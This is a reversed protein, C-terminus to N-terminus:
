RVVIQLSWRPFTVCAHISTAAEASRRHASALTPISAIELAFEM